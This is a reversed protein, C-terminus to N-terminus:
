HCWCLQHRIIVEKTWYHFNYHFCRMKFHLPEKNNNVMLPASDLGGGEPSAGPSRATQHVQHPSNGWWWAKGSCLSAWSWGHPGVPWWSRTPKRIVKLVMRKHHNWSSQNSKNHNGWLNLAKWASVLLGNCLSHPKMRICGPVLLTANIM